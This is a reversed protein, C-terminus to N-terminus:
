PSHWFGAAYSIIQGMVLMWRPEAYDMLLHHPFVIVVFVTGRGAASGAPAPFLELAGARELVALPSM